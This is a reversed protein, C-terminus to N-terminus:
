SDGHDGEWVERPLVESTGRLGADAHAVESTERPAVEFIGALARLARVVGEREADSLHRLRGALSAQTERRAQQLTMKGAPSLALTVRRRDSSNTERVVLERRVLGDVIRSMPALTLGVHEAVDSLSGGPRRDLFTLTRFQPVSLGRLRHRRMEARITRMVAPVVDLVERACEEPSVRM